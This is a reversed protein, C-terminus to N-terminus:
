RKMGRAYDYALTVGQLKGRLRDDEAQTSVDAIMQRLYQEADALRNLMADLADNWGKHESLDMLGGINTMGGMAGKGM